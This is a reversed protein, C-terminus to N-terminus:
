NNFSNNLEKENDQYIKLLGTDAPKLKKFPNEILPIEDAARVNTTWELEKEFLLGPPLLRHYDEGRIEDVGLQLHTYVSPFTRFYVDFGEPTKVTPLCQAWFPYEKAWMEHTVPTKFRRCQVHHSSFGLVMALGKVSFQDFWHEIEAEDPRGERDQWDFLLVFGKDGRIIPVTAFGM